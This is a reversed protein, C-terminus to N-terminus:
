RDGLRVVSWKEDGSKGLVRGGRNGGGIGMLTDGRREGQHEDVSRFV